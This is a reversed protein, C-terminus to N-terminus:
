RRAPVEPPLLRLPPPLSPAAVTTRETGPTAGRATLPPELLPLGAFSNRTETGKGGTLAVAGGAPPTRGARQPVTKRMAEIWDLQLDDPSDYGYVQAAEAWNRNDNRLGVGIFDLFKRRGALGGGGRDILYRCVSYGQAYLTHTDQPYEKMRFLVNLNICRGRSMLERCKVDHKYREDDNESLVSGGEDAWRPVAQGFRYAFVTHTVEHPLVSVLLRPVDGFIRMQQATVGMRGGAVPGFTFETAGGAQDPTVEVVLPCRAPWPPMEKGLWDLAKEKRFKEAAEGFTRALEKTPADVVFNETTARGAAPAPATACAVAALALLASVPAPRRLTM